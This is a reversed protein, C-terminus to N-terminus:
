PRTPTTPPPDSILQDGGLVRYLEVLNDARILRTQVLARRAAYLTRQTDLTNLFPSIGERYRATELFETDEAAATLRRQADLQADITGRRALADAVERFAIQVARKYQAVAVDRQGQAFQLDGRRAGGDFIPLSIGPGVSWNFAGGSFLSSLATSALGAVATLSITPFFNARAAGIRANAARLSYEAQVVDPRRLLIRSDLGAPLEGLQADVDEITRPLLADAVPAGVLLELANRDQAVLTVQAARDARAQELITEAQRVDTRPAIGGSLRAATLRVTIQASRETDAAIALLSADTAYALYASAVEAVLSLRTARVGAETALYEQLSARSLSRLRGFLDIEFASLGINAEYTTTNRSTGTTVGTGTGTGTGTGGTGTGGLQNSNSTSSRRGTTLGADAGIQPLQQARQVRYQGRAAAVNGLAIQLDQNNALAQEILTQLRPDRFIDRYSIAPLTAESTRLYADGRPWSPPVPPAPREYHPDFSCASLATLGLLLVFRRM